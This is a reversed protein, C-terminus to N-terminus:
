KGILSRYLGLTAELIRDPHYIDRARHWARRGKIEREEGLSSWRRLQAALAQVDGAPFLWGAQEGDMMEPVGGIDSGIIGRGLAMSELLSLPANEYWESPLVTGHSALILEPLRDRPVRGLFEVRDGLSLDAALARLSESEPGDGALRLRLDAGSLALARLLTALGKEYSMRGLWLLDPRDGRPPSQYPRKIWDDSLPVANPLHVMSCQELRGHRMKGLLFKSPSTFLAVGNEYSRLLRHWRDEAWLVLSESLSGGKCRHRLLPEPGRAMCEECPGGERLFTYVPCALKYDHLTLLVPIDRELAPKLISPTLQHYINHAHIVDPRHRDLLKAMGSAAKRGFITRSAERLKRGSSRRAHYDVNEPFCDSDATQVSNRDDNMGFFYVDHGASELRRSLGLCVIEAGGKPFLFKNVQLVKM